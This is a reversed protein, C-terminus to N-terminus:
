SRVKILCMELAGSLPLSRTKGVIMLSPQLLKVPVFSQNIVFIRLNHFFFTIYCPSWTGIDYFKEHALKHNQTILQHTQIVNGCELKICHGYFTLCKMVQDLGPSNEMTWSNYTFAAIQLLSLTLMFVPPPSCSYQFFILRKVPFVLPPLVM